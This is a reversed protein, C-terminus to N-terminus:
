HKDRWPVWGSLALPMGVCVNILVMTVNALIVGVLPMGPPSVHVVLIYGLGIWALVYFVLFVPLTPKKM